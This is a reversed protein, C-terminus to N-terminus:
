KQGAPGKVKQAGWGAINWVNPYQIFITNTLLAGVSLTALVWRARKRANQQLFFDLFKKIWFVALLILPFVYTYYAYPVPTIAYQSFTGLGYVAIGGVWLWEKQKKDLRWMMGASIASVAYLMLVFFGMFFSFYHKQALQQAFGAEGLPWVWQSNSVALIGWAALPPVIFALILSRSIFFMGKATADWRVSLAMVMAYSGWLCFGSFPMFAIALACTSAMGIIYFTGQTRLYLWFCIFFLADWAHTLITVQPYAWVLPFAAEHFCQLKIAMVIGCAALLTEGTFLRLLGYVCAFYLIHMGAMFAVQELPVAAGLGCVKGWLTVGFFQRLGMAQDLASLVVGCRDGDTIFFVTGIFALVVADSGWAVVAKSTLHAYRESLGKVVRCMEEWFIKNLISLGLAGYFLGKAWLPGQYMYIKFAAFIELAVWFAQVIALRSVTSLFDKALLQKHYIFVIWFHVLLASAAFIAYLTLEREPQISDRYRLLLTDYFPGHAYPIANSVAAALILIELALLISYAVLIMISPLLDLLPNQYKLYCLIM